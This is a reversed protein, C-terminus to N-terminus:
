RNKWAQVTRLLNRALPSRPNERLLRQFEREAEDLLGARAYMVGLALHSVPRQKELSSLEQLRESELVKFQARPAPAVPATLEQGDKIATVEWSYVRGRRLPTTVRWATAAQPESKAIRNFDADFLSVTYSTAGNLPRWRLTPRDNETVIGVPSLPRFSSGGAPQGLLTIAPASLEDLGQAKQLSEGSLVAKVSRETSPALGELGTLNGQTDLKIEQGNDKLSVVISSNDNQESTGKPAEGVVAQQESTNTSVAASMEDNRKVGTSNNQPAPTSANEDKGSETQATQNPRTGNRSQYWILGVLLFLGGFLVIVGLVRAPSALGPWQWWSSFREKFSAAKGSPRASGAPSAPLPKTASLIRAEEGCQPCIDLHSECIIRDAEDISGGVYNKLEGRSLHFPEEESRPLFAETLATFAVSTYEPDLVRRLCNECANLHASLRQREAPDISRRRYLEAEQETLHESM